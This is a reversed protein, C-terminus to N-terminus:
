KKNFNNSKVAIKYNAEIKIYLEINGIYSKSTKKKEFDFKQISM